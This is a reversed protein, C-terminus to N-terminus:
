CISFPGARGEQEEEGEEEEEWTGLISPESRCGALRQAGGDRLVISVSPVNVLRFEPYCM